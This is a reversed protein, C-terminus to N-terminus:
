TLDPGGERAKHAPLHWVPEWPAPLPLSCLTIRGGPVPVPREWARAPAGPPVWRRSGALVIVLLTAPPLDPVPLHRTCTVARAPEWLAGGGRKSVRLVQTGSTGSVESAMNPPEDDDLLRPPGPRSSLGPNVVEEAGPRPGEPPAPEPSRAEASRKAWRLRYPPPRPCRGARAM